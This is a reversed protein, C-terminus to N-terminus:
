IQFQGSLNTGQALLQAAVKAFNRAAVAVKAYDRSYSDRTVSEPAGNRYELIQRTGVRSRVPALLAASVVIAAKNLGSHKLRALANGALVLVVVTPYLHIYICILPRPGRRVLSLEALM